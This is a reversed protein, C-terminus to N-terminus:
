AVALVAEIEILIDEEVLEGIVSTSAPSADGFYGRRIEAYVAVDERRPLWAMLKVVGGLDTGAASALDRLQELVSHVQAEIPGRRDGDKPAVLGSTYVLSFEGSLRVAKSGHVPKGGLRFAESSPDIIPSIDPM